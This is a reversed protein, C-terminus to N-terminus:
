MDHCKSSLEISSVKMHSGVMQFKNQDNECIETGPYSGQVCPVLSARLQRRARCVEPNIHAPPYNAWGSAENIQADSMQIRLLEKCKCNHTSEGPTIKM